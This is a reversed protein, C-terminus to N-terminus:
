IKGMYRYKCMGTWLILINMHEHTWINMYTWKGAHGYIRTGMHGYMLTWIAMRAYIRRDM